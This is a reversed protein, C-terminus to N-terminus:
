VENGPALAYNWEEAAELLTTMNKAINEFILSIFGLKDEKTYRHSVKNLSFDSLDHIALFCSNAGSQSQAEADKM